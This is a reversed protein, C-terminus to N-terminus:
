VLTLNQHAYLLLSHIPVNYPCKKECIGSCEGCKEAKATSLNAYQSMAHKQQRQTEFYHNFRMITNVPVNHPCASECIGCAHRCYYRGIDKEYDMLMSTDTNELKQGSLSVFSNLDEFNNISPCVSHVGKNTLTFKIAADRIQEDTKLNHKEKFKDVNSLYAKYNKELDLIQQNVKGGRERFKELGEQWRNFVNVPNTKMLTVGM